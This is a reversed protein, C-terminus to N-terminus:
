YRSREFNREIKLRGAEADVVLGRSDLLSNHDFFLKGSDDLDDPHSLIWRYSETGVGPIDRSTESWFYWPESQSVTITAHGNADTFWRKNPKAPLSSFVVSNFETRLSDLKRELDSSYRELGAIKEEIPRVTEALQKEFQAVARSKQARLESLVDLDDRSTEPPVNNERPIQQNYNDAVESKTKNLRFNEEAILDRTDSLEKRVAAVRNEHDKSATKLLPVVASAPSARIELSELPYPRQGRSVIVARVPITVKSYISGVGQSLGASDSGTSCGLSMFVPTLVAFYFAFFNSSRLGYSTTPAVRLFKM